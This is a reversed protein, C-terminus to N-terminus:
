QVTHYALEHSLVHIRAAAGYLRRILGTHVKTIQENLFLFVCDVLFFVM